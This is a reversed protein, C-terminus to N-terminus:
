GACCTPSARRPSSACTPASTRSCPRTASSRARFIPWCSSSCTGPRRPACAFSLPRPSVRRPPRDSGEHGRGRRSIVSSQDSGEHGRGGRAGKGETGRRWGWTGAAAGGSREVGARRRACKFLYCLTSFVDELQEVDSPTLLAALTALLPEFEPYFEQRLDAALAATVELMPKLAISPAGALHRRVAEFIKTRQHLILPLSLLMPELEKRFEGFQKTCNLEVWREMAAAALPLDSEGRVDAEDATLRHFVDINVAAIRQSFNQYVFRKGESFSKSESYAPNLSQM